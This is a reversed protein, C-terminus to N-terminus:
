IVSCSIADKELFVPNIFCFNDIRGGGVRRKFRGMIGFFLYRSATYMYYLM